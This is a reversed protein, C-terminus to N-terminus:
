YYCSGEEGERIPLCADSNKVSHTCRTGVQADTCFCGGRERLMCRSCPAGNCEEVKTGPTVLLTSNRLTLPVYQNRCQKTTTDSYSLVLYYIDGIQVIRTESIPTGDEFTTGVNTPLNLETINGRVSGVVKLGPRARAGDESSGPHHGCGLLGFLAFLTLLTRLMTVACSRPGGETM